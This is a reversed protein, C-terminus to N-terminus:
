YKSFMATQKGNSNGITIYYNGKPLFKIDISFSNNGTLLLQEEKILKGGADVIRMSAKGKISNTQIYINDIAPNPFVAMKGSNQMPRV